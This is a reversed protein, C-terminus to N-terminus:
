IAMVACDIVSDQALTPKSTIRVMCTAKTTNFQIIQYMDPKIEIIIAYTPFWDNIMESKQILTTWRKGDSKKRIDTKMTVCFDNVANVLTKRGDRTDRFHKVARELYLQAKM